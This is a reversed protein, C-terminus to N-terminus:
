ALVASLVRDRGALDPTITVDRYGAGLAVDRTRHALDPAIELVISGSPQLWGPADVLLRELHELGTPGSVLAVRPEYDRIEDPLREFEAESVYPPNAVVVHLQGQLERPLADFWDGEVLRVRTAHSGISALNARAVALADASIDTAWVNAEPVEMAMALAIAGSGTGLDAVLSPKRASKQTGLMAALEIAVEATQETEPRPILVRRDVFLDLGRFSWEGLAYQLPEGSARRSTMSRVHAAARLSVPDLDPSREIADVRFGSAREIIWGAERWPSPVGAAALERQVADRLSPWAPRDPLAPERIVRDEVVRDGIVRDDIV